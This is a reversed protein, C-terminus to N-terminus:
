APPRAIEDGTLVGDRLLAEAILRIHQQAWPASIDKAIPVVCPSRPPSSPRVIADTRRESTALGRM